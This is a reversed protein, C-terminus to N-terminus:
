LNDPTIYVEYLLHHDFSSLKSVGYKIKLYSGLDFTFSTRDHILNNRYGAMKYKPIKKHRDRLDYHTSGENRSGYFLGAHGGTGAGGKYLYKEYIGHLPNYVLLGSFTLDNTSTARLFEPVCPIRCQLKRNITKTEKMIYFLSDKWREPIHGVINKYLSPNNQLLSDKNIEQKVVEANTETEFSVTHSLINDYILLHIAESILGQTNFVKGKYNWKLNVLQYRNGFRRIYFTKLKIYESNPIPSNAIKILKLKYDNLTSDVCLPVMTEESIANIFSSDKANNTNISRGVQYSLLRLDGNFEKSLKRSETGSVLSDLQNRWNINESEVRDKIARLGQDHVSETCGSYIVMLVIITIFITTAKIRKFEKFM